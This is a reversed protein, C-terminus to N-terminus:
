YPSQAVRRLWHVAKRTEAVYKQAEGIAGEVETGLALALSPDISGDKKTVKWALQVLRPRFEPVQKLASILDGSKM